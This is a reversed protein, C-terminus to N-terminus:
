NEEDVIDSIAHRLSDLPLNYKILIQRVYPDQPNIGGDKYIKNWFPMVLKAAEISKDRGIDSNNEISKAVLNLSFKAGEKITKKKENMSFPPHGGPLFGGMEGGSDIDGLLEKCFKLIKMVLKKAEGVNGCAELAHYIEKFIDEEKFSEKVLGENLNSGVDQRIAKIAESIKAGCNLYNLDKSLDHAKLLIEGLEDEQNENVFGRTQEKIKDVTERIYKFQAETLKFGGIEENVKSNFEFIKNIEDLKQKLLRYANKSKQVPTASVKKELERKSVETLTEKIEKAIFKIIKKNM